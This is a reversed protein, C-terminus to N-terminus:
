RQGGGLTPTVNTYNVAVGSKDTFKYINQGASLAPQTIAVFLLSLLLQRSKMPM